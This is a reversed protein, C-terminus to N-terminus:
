DQKSGVSEYRLTLEPGTLRRRWQHEELDSRMEGSWKSNWKGRGYELRGTEM